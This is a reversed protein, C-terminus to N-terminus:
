PRGPRIVRLTDTGEFCTFNTFQGGVTVVVDDGVELIGHVEQRPFKVMMEKDGDADCDYYAYPWPLTYVKPGDDRQIYVTPQSIDRVDYGSPLDIFATMVRGRSKLNVTLPRVKVGAAVCPPELECLTIDDIYARGIGGTTFDSALGFGWKDLPVEVGYVSAAPITAPWAPLDAGVHVGNIYVDATESPFNIAVYVAFTSATGASWTSIQSSVPGYWWVTGDLRFAVANEAPVQGPYRPDEFFFGVIGSAEPTGEMHLFATYCFFNPLPWAGFDGLALYPRQIPAGPDSASLLSQSGSSAFAVTVVEVDNGRMERWQAPHAGVAYSEFDDSHYVTVPAAAAGAALCLSLPLILLFVVFRSRM